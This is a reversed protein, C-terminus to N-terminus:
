LRQREGCKEAGAARGIAYVVAETMPYDEIDDVNVWRADSHESSFRVVQSDPSALHARYNIQLTRQRNKSLYIFCNVPELVIIDIGTEERVERVLAQELSEDQQVGGSPLEWIGPFVEADQRRLLILVRMKNICVAGLAVRFLEDQM